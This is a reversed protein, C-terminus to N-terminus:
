RAIFTTARGTVRRVRTAVKPYYGKRRAAQYGVYLLGGIVAAGVLLAGIGLGGVATQAQKNCDQPRPRQKNGPPLKGFQREYGRILRAEDCSPKNSAQWRFRPATGIQERLRRQCSTDSKGYKHTSGEKNGLEYVCPLMTVEALHETDLTNWAKQISV